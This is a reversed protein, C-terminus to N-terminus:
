DYAMNIKQWKDPIKFQDSSCKKNVQINELLWETSVNEEYWSFRIKKPVYFTNLFSHELIEASAVLKNDEFILNATIAPKIPDVETVIVVKNKSMSSTQNKVYMKDNSIVIEGQSVENLGLSSILWIPDFPTKLRSYMKNCHETYYLINPNYRKSWFWFLENNSGIVMEQGLLSYMQTNLNTPKEYVLVGKINILKKAKISLNCSFSEIKSNQINLEEIVKNNNHKLCTIPKQNNTIDSEQSVLCLIWVLIPILLFIKTLSNDM